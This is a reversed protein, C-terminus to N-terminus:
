GAARVAARIAPPMRYLNRNQEKRSELLSPLDAPLEDGLQKETRSVNRHFARVHAWSTLTGVSAGSERSDNAVRLQRRARLFPQWSPEAGCTRGAARPRRSRGETRHESVLRIVVFHGFAVSRRPIPSQGECGNHCCDCRVTLSRTVITHPMLM